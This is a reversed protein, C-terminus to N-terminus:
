MGPVFRRLVVRTPWSVFRGEVLARAVETTYPGAKRLASWVIAVEAAAQVVVLVLGLVWCRTSGGAVGLAVMGAGILASWTGPMRM